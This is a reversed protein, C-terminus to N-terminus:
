VKSRTIKFIEDWLFVNVARNDRAAIAKAIIFVSVFVSPLQRTALLSLFRFAQLFSDSQFIPWASDVARQNETRIKMMMM